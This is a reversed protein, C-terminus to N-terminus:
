IDKRSSIRNAKSPLSSRSTKLVRRAVWGMNEKELIPMNKDWRRQGAVKEMM